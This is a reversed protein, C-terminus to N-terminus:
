KSGKIINLFNIMDDLEDDSIEGDGNFHFNKIGAADLKLLQEDSLIVAM